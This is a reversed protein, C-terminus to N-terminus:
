NIDHRTWGSPIGSAGTPITLEAPCYFDGSPSVNYLWSSLCNSASIDTM